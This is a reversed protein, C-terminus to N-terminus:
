TLTQDQLSRPSLLFKVGCTDHIPLAQLHGSFKAEVIIRIVKEFVKGSLTRVLVTFFFLLYYYYLVLPPLPFFCFVKPYPLDSNTRALTIM